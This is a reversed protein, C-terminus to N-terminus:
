RPWGTLTSRLPLRSSLVSIVTLLSGWVSVAIFGDFTSKQDAIDMEGRVYDSAM